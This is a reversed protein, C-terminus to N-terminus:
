PLPVYGAQKLELTLSDIVPYIEESQHHSCDGAVFVHIDNDIEIWSCGPQKKLGMDKIESRVKVVEHAKGLDELHNALLVRYGISTADLEFVHNAVVKALKEDGHSRCSGLLSGWIRDDPECPMDMVLDYAQSLHGARGLLDVMCTYHEVQPQLKYEEVM